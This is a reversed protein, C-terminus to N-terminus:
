SQMARSAKQRFVEAITPGPPGEATREIADGAGVSGRRLVGLYFGSRGSELFRRIMGPDGFRIGLKTCPLRPTTVRFEADGIRLRDGAKLEAELIGRTTLNEGFSGWRLPLRLEATWRPYHEAPYAYVAKESGGHVRLDATQDGDLHDELVAVRGEVPRKWIGTRM